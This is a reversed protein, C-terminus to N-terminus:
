WISIYLKGSEKDVGISMTNHIGDKLFKLDQFNVPKDLIVEVGESGYKSQDHVTIKGNHHEDVFLETFRDIAKQTNEVNLGM